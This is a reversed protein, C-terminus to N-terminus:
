SIVTHDNSRMIEDVICKLTCKDVASYFKPRVQQESTRIHCFEHPMKDSLDQQVSPLKRRKSPGPNAAENVSESTSSHKYSHIDDESTGSDGSLVESSVTIWSVAIPKSSKEKNRM